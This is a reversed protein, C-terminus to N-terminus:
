PIENNSGPKNMEFHFDIDKLFMWNNASDYTDKLNSQLRLFRFDIVASETIGVGSITGLDIVYHRKAVWSSVNQQVYFTDTTAFTSNISAITYEFMLYLSDGASPTTEIAVHVHAKIDTGPKYSHKLQAIGWSEDDATQFNYAYGPIGGLFTRKSPANAGDGLATSSVTVDDWFTDEYRIQANFFMTDVSGYVSNGFNVDENFIADNNVDLFDVYIQDVTLTTVSINENDSTDIVGNKLVLNYTGSQPLNRLEIEKNIIVKNQFYSSDGYVQFADLSMLPVSNFRFSGTSYFDMRNEFQGFSIYNNKDASILRLDGQHDYIDHTGGTLSPIKITDEVTLNESISTNKFSTGRQVNITDSNVVIHISDNIMTLTITDGNPYITPKTLTITDKFTAKFEIQKANLVLFNLM